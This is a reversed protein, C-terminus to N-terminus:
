KGICFSSFIHGLLEDSTVKGTIESLAEQALKLEEAVLEGAQFKVLQRHACKIHKQANKLADVHRQRASFLGEEVATGQKFYELLEDIGDANKVSINLIKVPASLDPPQPCLDIKNLLILTKDAYDKLLQQETETLLVEQTTDVMLLVHDADAIKQKARIIGQQEVLGAADRIGATDVFHYPVGAIEITAQIADRTTGPEDTVIAIEDKALLNLLSSKGANPRGAIAVTAGEQLLQGGKAHMLITAVNSLLGEMKILLGGESLFDIEEEAFDISAEVYVRISNLLAQMESIKQSFVGNLSRNASKVASETSANILDAIAEAQLLDIKENLFARQSFEGPMAMRAGLKIVQNLLMKVVVMGGHCHLELVDEGTFSHPGRFFLALGKDISAGEDDVFTALTALRKKPLQGLLQTAIKQVKDGSVRVIGVAGKVPATAIAAITDHGTLM